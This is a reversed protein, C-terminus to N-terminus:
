KGLRLKLEFSETRFFVQLLSCRITKNAHYFPTCENYFIEM